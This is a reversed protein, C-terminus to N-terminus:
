TYKTNFVNYYIIFYSTYEYFIDSTVLKSDVAVVLIGYFQAYEPLKKVHKTFSLNINKIQFEGFLLMHGLRRHLELITTKM